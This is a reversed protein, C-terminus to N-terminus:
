LELHVTYALTSEEGPQLTITYPKDSFECSNFTKSPLGLWPELCVFPAAKGTPTWIAFAPFGAFDMRVARGDPSALRVSTSNLNGLILADGDFLENTMDIRNTGQLLDTRVFDDRILYKEDAYWVTAHEEKDFEVSCGEVSQAGIAPLNFGTHGGLNFPMPKTDVNKVAFHTIFGDATVTHTITLEFDFPYAEKTMASAYTRLSISEESQAVVDYEVRRAFGHSTIPYAVGDFDIHGEKVRGIVPFLHPNQGGWYTPDGTWIYEAAGDTLSVLEAGLSNIKASLNGNQITYQM